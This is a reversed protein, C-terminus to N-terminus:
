HEIPSWDLRDKKRANDLMWLPQYNSFHFCRAQQEPDTLDFSAVPIRHDFQWSDRKRGYNAWTMGPLWLQEIHRVFDAISCGLLVILRSSKLARKSRLALLLQLRLRVNVRFQIDTRYRHTLRKSVQKWNRPPRKGM